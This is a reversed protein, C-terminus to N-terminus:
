FRIESRLRGFRSKISADIIRGDVMIKVGGILSADILNTLEVNEKLLKSTEAEFARIKEEALPEVSYIEGEIVGEKEEFMTRYARAIGPLEGFRRKDILICLFNVFETEARGDLINKLVDKKDSQAIAPSLLFTEFDKNERLIELFGDCDDMISESKGREKAAGYLAAAYTMDVSLEAM